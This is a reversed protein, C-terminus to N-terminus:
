FNTTFGTYVTEAMRESIEDIAQRRNHETALKDGSVAYAEDDTLDYVSWLARGDPTAITVSLAVTVRRELAVQHGRHTITKVTIPGIAGTLRADAESPDTALRAAARSARTFEYVLDNTFTTEIGTIGTRNALLPIYIRRISDPLNGQGAFRYGCGGWLLLALLTAAAIYGRRRRM